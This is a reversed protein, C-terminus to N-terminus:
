SGIDESTRKSDQSQTKRVQPELFKYRSEAARSAPGTSFQKRLQDYQDVAEQKRGLEEYIQALQLMVTDLPFDTSEEELIQRLAAIAADGDGQAQAVFALHIRALNRLESPVDSEIVEGLAHLSQESNGLRHQLIGLYYRSLYSLTADPDQEVIATFKELAQADREATMEFVLGGTQAHDHGEHGDSEGEVPAQFVKLAEAYQLQLESEQTGWYSELGYVVAIAAVLVVLLGTLIRTNEAAWDYIRLLFGRVRDQQIEKRTLHKIALRDKGQDPRSKQAQCSEFRRCM